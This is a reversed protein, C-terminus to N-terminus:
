RLAAGTDDSVPELRRPAQPRANLLEAMREDVAREFNAPEREEDLKEGLRRVLERMRALHDERARISLGLQIIVQGRLQDILGAVAASREGAEAERVERALRSAEADVNLELLKLDYLTPDREKLRALALLRHSRRLRRDFAERHTDRLRHLDAALQADLDRAVALCQEIRDESLQGGPLPAPARGSGNAAIPMVRHVPPEADAPRSSPPQDSGVLLEDLRHDVETEFNGPVRLHEVENQLRLVLEELRCLYEERERIQFGKQLIVQWRLQQELQRTERERGDRGAARAEGALRTVAADTQIELIKLEYASRDRARLQALMSLHRNRALKEQFSRRDTQQLDRLAEALSPDIDGAVELCAQVLEEPMPVPTRDAPTVGARDISPPADIAAPVSSPAAVASVASALLVTALM